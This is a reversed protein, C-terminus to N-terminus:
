KWSRRLEDLQSGDELVKHCSEWDVEEIREWRFEFPHVEPVTNIKQYAAAENDKAVMIWIDELTDPIQGFISYINQLRQALVLHVRDEVSGRYRLNLLDVSERPQGIRVIRGKRQELRTPNWPLDINILTGLRQLNLGESAADTGVLLTIEGSQVMNKIQDRKKTEYDGRTYIRSRNAGAYLGIIEDPYDESLKQAVWEATDFYQSFLICGLKKWGRDRLYKRVEVLKPDTNIREAQILSELFGELHM